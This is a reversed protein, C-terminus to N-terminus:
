KKVRQSGTTRYLRIEAGGDLISQTIRTDLGLLLRRNMSRRLGMTARVWTAAMPLFSHLTEEVQIMIMKISTQLSPHIGTSLRPGIRSIRQGQHGVIIKKLHQFPSVGQYHNTHPDLTHARVLSTAQRINMRLIILSTRPYSNFRLHRTTPIDHLRNRRM